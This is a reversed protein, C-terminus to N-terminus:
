LWIPSTEVFVVADLVIFLAGVLLSTVHAFTVAKIRSGVTFALVYALAILSM